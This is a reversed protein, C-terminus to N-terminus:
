HPQQNQSLTRPVPLCQSKEEATEYGSKWVPSPLVLEAEVSAPPPVSETNQHSFDCFLTESCPHLQLPPTLADNEPRPPAHAPFVSLGPPGALRRPCSGCPKGSPSSHDQRRPPRPLGTGLGGTSQSATAPAPIDMLFSEASPGPGSHLNPSSPKPFGALPGSQPPSQGPCPLRASHCPGAGGRQPEASIEQRPM